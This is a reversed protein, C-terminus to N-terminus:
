ISTERWIKTYSRLVDICSFNEFSSHNSATQSSSTLRLEEREGIDKSLTAVSSWNQNEVTLHNRGM